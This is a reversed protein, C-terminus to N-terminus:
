GGSRLGLHAVMEPLASRLDRRARFGLERHIKEASYLASGTLKELADSDFAPRRNAVLGVVDGIGAALRLLWAPVTWGPRPKGLSDCIWAHIQRTSYGHGDTLIYIQGAARPDRAVLMAAEVVDSVHVMSRRKATEPLPPFRGRAVAEIMRPLNGKRTPGYVMSPRLVVPEPVYGGDLVLREAELKSAGYPTQPRCAATEDQAEASGEGMAKVSSFFVFRQVGAARCSELLKRTGEANLRFYEEADRRTDSLAHAKGALHFVCSVDRLDAATLSGGALDFGVTDDRAPV